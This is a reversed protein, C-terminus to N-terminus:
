VPADAMPFTMASDAQRSPRMARGESRSLEGRLEGRLEGTLYRASRSRSEM